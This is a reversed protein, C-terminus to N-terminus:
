IKLAKKKKQKTAIQNFFYHTKYTTHLNNRKFSKPLEAGIIKDQLYDVM